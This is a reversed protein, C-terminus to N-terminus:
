IQVAGGVSVWRCGCAYECERMCGCMGWGRVCGCM